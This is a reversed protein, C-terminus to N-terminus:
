HREGAQLRYFYVGSGVANGKTNKGDWVCKGYGVVPKERLLTRVLKGELTFISLTVAAMKPVTFGITTEPHFPNPHNQELSLVLDMVRVRLVESQIENGQEPKAVIMYEYTIGPEVDENRFTRAEAPLFELLIMPGGSPEDVERRYIEFGRITEDTAVEWSLEVGGGSQRAECAAFTAAVLASGFVRGYLQWSSDALIVTPNQNTWATAFYGSPSIGVTPTVPYDSISNIVIEKQIPIGSSNFRRCRVQASDYLTILRRWAVVYDGSSSMDMSPYWSEYHGM